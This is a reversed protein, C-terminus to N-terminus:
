KAKRKWDPLNRQRARGIGLGDAPVNHTIVSGAAVTARAGVRVPAVLATNSGIFAGEEIQTQHKSQGDYNCTITGAGVNVGPGIEVDGLYSLHNAKAGVGLRAKKTEVFNGIRTNPGLETGPRLRAFPGVVAGPGVLAGDVISQAEIRAGAAISSNRIWTNPGIYVGEGLSVTGEFVCNVDIVVDPDCDLVGRLDFRAPDLISVGSLMLEQAVQLQLHRELTGLQLRDNIGQVEEPSAAFVSRVPTGEACALAVIDTLYYENQSNDSRLGELWCRLRATPMAMIGTNVETLERQAATADREEVIAAIQGQQDRVIRGYGQPRELDVTLVGLAEQHAVALLAEISARSLLPVDGYLVLTHGKPDLADLAQQVAHGTGLQESQSVWNVEYGTSAAQVADAAHGVVVHIRAGTLCSATELVHHLLPRGALSHLVKPQSSRMRTGKGAALVVVDLGM